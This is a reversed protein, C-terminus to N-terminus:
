RFPVSTAQSKQSLRGMQRMSRHVCGNRTNFRSGAAVFFGHAGECGALPARNFPVAIHQDNGPRSCALCVRQHLPTQPADAVRLLRHREVANQHDREGLRRCGLHPLPEAVLQLLLGARTRIIQYDVSFEPVGTGEIWQAFFYRLNEGAIQSALREFDDISANKDRFREVFTHMLVRFKDAGLTEKVISEERTFVWVEFLPEGTDSLPADAAAVVVKPRPDLFRALHERHILPNM